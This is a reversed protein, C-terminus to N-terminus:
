PNTVEVILDLVIDRAKGNLRAALLALEHVVQTRAASLRTNPM